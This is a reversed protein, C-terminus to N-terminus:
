VERTATCVLAITDRLAPRHKLAMYRLFSRIGTVRAAPHYDVFHLERIHWGAAAVTKGLTYPSFLAFHDSNIHERNRLSLGFNDYCLANPTTIVLEKVRHGISVRLGKLFEIPQPIHELVDPLLINDWDGLFIEPIGHAQTLDHYVINDVGHRIRLREILEQNVDIGICRSAVESIASHLWQGAEIKPDILDAHDLCGVHLVSRDRAKEILFDWRSRPMDFSKSYQLQLLPKFADGTFYPETGPPYNMENENVCKVAALWKAVHRRRDNDKSSRAAPIDM